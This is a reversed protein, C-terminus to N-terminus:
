LLDAKHPQKRGISALFRIVKRYWSKLVIGTTFEPMILRFNAPLNGDSANNKITILEERIGAIIRDLAAHGESTLSEQMVSKLEVLYRIPLSTCAINDAISRATKHDRDAYSMLKDCLHLVGDAEKRIYLINSSIQDQSYRSSMIYESYLVESKTFSRSLQDFSTVLEVSQELSRRYEDSNNGYIARRMSDAEAVREDLTNAFFQHWFWLNFMRPTKGKGEIPLMHINAEIKRHILQSVQDLWVDDFWTPFYNTLYKGTIDLWNAGLIVFTVNGPSIPDHPYALWIGDTNKRAISRLEEDWAPTTFTYDDVVCMYVDAPSSAKWLVDLMIGASGTRGAVHWNILFHYGERCGKSCSFELTAVDDDDVYVNLIVKDKQHVTKEISDLVLGLRDPRGRTPLLLSIIIDDDSVANM